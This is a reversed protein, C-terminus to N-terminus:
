GHKLAGDLRDAKIERLAHLLSARALPNPCAQVLNDIGELLRRYWDTHYPCPLYEDCYFPIDYHSSSGTQVHCIDPM